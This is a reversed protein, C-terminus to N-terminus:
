VEVFKESIKEVKRKIKEEDDTLVERDEMVITGNVILHEVEDGSASYVLANEPSYHPIMSIAKYNILAVDALYGEEIKGGKIGYAKYGNETAMKLIEVAKMADARGYKIKQLLSSLKMEFFMNYSNNSAAGDTGLAVNIGSEKMEKVRAIGAVLKLNSTPCHVVSVNRNRLIEIEEDELWIAHAIVVDERLFGIDELLRVPTKGYRRKIEEREWETEAVHIHIGVGLENAKERVRKLFEPTCTYPAHPGFVAKILNEANNWEKIFKEGIELEKRGREEDGRDAMGYCLVARMGLEIAAEAVKDMHIYLDSFCAIGRKFMEVIALKTGWYVDDESLKREARWIKKELWDKLQMDEALGRLIIMAAHTHANFFAPVCLLDSSNFEVEGKVNEKGVYAIKEGKIGVSARLFEGNIFCLADNIAIDFM